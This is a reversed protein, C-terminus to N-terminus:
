EEWPILEPVEPVQSVDFCVLVRFDPDRWYCWASEQGQPWIVEAYWTEALVQAFTIVLTLVVAFVACWVREKRSM